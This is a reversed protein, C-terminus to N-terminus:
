HFLGVITKILEPLAAIIAIIASILAIIFMRKNEREASALQKRMLEVNAFAADASKMAADANKMNSLAKTAETDFNACITTAGSPDIITNKM